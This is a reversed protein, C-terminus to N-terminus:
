CRSILKIIKYFFICLQHPVDGDIETNCQSAISTTVVIREDDWKM